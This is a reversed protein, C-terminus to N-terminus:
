DHRSFNVWSLAFCECHDARLDHTRRWDGLSMEHNWKSVKWVPLLVAIVMAPEWPWNSSLTKLGTSM